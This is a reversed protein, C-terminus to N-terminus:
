RGIWKQACWIDRGEGIQTGALVQELWAPGFPAVHGIEAITPARHLLYDVREPQFGVRLATM